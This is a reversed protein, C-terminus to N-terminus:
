GLRVPVAASDPETPHFEVAILYGFRTLYSRECPLCTSTTSGPDSALEGGCEPCSMAFLGATM